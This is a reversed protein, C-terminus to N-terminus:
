NFSLNLTMWIVSASNLGSMNYEGAPTYGELIDRLSKKKNKQTTSSGSTFVSKGNQLRLRKSKLSSSKIKRTGSPKKKGRPKQSEKALESEEAVKDLLRQQGEPYSM